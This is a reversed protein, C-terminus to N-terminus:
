LRLGIGVEFNYNPYWTQEGSNNLPGRYLATTFDLRAIVNQTISYEHGTGLFIGLASLNSTPSNLSSTTTVTSDVNGLGASFYWNFYLIENFMNIKAYWPVWHLLLGYEDDISRIVPMVQTNTSLLAQYNNNYTNFSHSYFAELGWVETFYYALRADVTATNQYANGFSPGGMVSLIAHNANVYRRNQLVYIKKEPDLWKFDYDSSSDSSSDSDPKQAPDPVAPGEDARAEAWSSAMLFLWCLALSILALRWTWAPVARLNISDLWTSQANGQNKM